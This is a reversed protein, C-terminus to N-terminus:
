YISDFISESYKVAIISRGKCLFIFYEDILAVNKTLYTPMWMM